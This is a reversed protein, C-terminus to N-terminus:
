GQEGVRPGQETYNLSERRIGGHRVKRPPTARIPIGILYNFTSIRQKECDGKRKPSGSATWSSGFIKGDPSVIELLGFAKMPDKQPMGVM